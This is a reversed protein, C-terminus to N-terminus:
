LTAPTGEIGFNAYSRAALTHSSRFRSVLGGLQGRTAVGATFRAMIPRHIRLRARGGRGNKCCRRIGRRRADIISDRERQDRDGREDRQQGEAIEPEAPVVVSM